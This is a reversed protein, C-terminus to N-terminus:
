FGGFLKGLFGVKDNWGLQKRIEEVRNKSARLSDIHRDLTEFDRVWVSSLRFWISYGSDPKCYVKIEYGLEKELPVTPNSNYYDTIVQRAKNLEAICKEIQKGEVSWGKNVWVGIRRGGDSPKYSYEWYDKRVKLLAGKGFVENYETNEDMFFGKLPKPQNVSLKGESELKVPVSSESTSSSLRLKNDSTLVLNDVEMFGSKIMDKVDETTFDRPEGGSVLSYGIINGSKDRYRNVCTAKIM